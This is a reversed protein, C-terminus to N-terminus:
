NVARRYGALGAAPEGLIAGALSDDPAGPHEAVIREARQRGQELNKLVTTRYRDPRAPNAKATREDAIRAFIRDVTLPISPSDPVPRSPADGLMQESSARRISPANSSTISPANSTADTDDHEVSAVLIGPAYSPRQWRASAAKRAKTSRAAAAAKADAATPNYTLYDHILYHGSTPTPCTPCGTTHDHWLDADVLEEVVRGTRNPYLTPIAVAPIIGDTLHRAAYTMGAVHLRFAGDTLGVVKPHTAFGDDIRLWPM